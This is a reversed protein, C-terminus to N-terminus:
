RGKGKGWRTISTVRPRCFSWREGRCRQFDKTEKPEGLATMGEENGEAWLKKLTIIGGGEAKGERCALM